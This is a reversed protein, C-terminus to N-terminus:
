THSRLWWVIMWNSKIINERWSAKTIKLSTLWLLIKGTKKRYVQDDLTLLMKMLMLMKNLLSFTLQNKRRKIIEELCNSNYKILIKAVQRGNEKKNFKYSMIHKLQMVGLDYLELIFEMVSILIHIIRLITM